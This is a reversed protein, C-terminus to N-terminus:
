VCVYVCVRVCVCVSVRSYSQNWEISQEVQVVLTTTFCYTRNDLTASLQGTELKAIKDVSTALESEMKANKAALEAVEAQLVAVANVLLDVQDNRNDEDTTSQGGVIVFAAASISIFLWRQFNWYCMKEGNM